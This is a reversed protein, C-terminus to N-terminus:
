GIILAAIVNRQESVLAVFCRCAAATDMCEVGIGQTHFVSLLNAPLTQFREGTGLLIVDPKHSLIADLDALTLDEMCTPRWDIVAQEETILVSSEHKERNTLELAGNQYSRICCVATNDEQLAM